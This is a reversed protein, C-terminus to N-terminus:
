DFLHFVGTDGAGCPSVTQKRSPGELRSLPWQYEPLFKRVVIYLVAIGIVQLLMWAMDKGSILMATQNM